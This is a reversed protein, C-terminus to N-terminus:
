TVARPASVSGRRVPPCGVLVHHELTSVSQDILHRSALQGMEYFPLRVTSLPPCVSDALEEQDDYGVVSVDEPVRLGMESLAFYAGLAMRDNGLFVATPPRRQAMVERTLAYGSPSRYDGWRVSSARLAIGADALGARFGKVRRKAAWSTVEGGICGIDRHGADILMQAAHRGGQEEDPLVSPVRFRSTVCNVLVTPVRSVTSPLRVERTGETAILIGDVRRSILEDVAEALEKEDDADLILLLSDHTRAMDHAGSILRGAFPTGLREGVFGLTRSSRTALARAQHNPRYGLATIADRVRQQTDERLGTNRRENLVLSVTTISVGALRAVDAM